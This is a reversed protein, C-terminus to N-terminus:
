VTGLNVLNAVTFMKMDGAGSCCATWQWKLVLLASFGVWLPLIVSEQPFHLQREENGIFLGIM